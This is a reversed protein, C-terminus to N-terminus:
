FTDNAIAENTNVKEIFKLLKTKFENIENSWDERTVTIIHLPRSIYRPDYSVFYMTEITDVITFYHLLQQKYEAPVRNTIIYEIHKKSDPCKVEVGETPIPINVGGVLKNDVILGDPSLHCNPFNENTVMGFHEVDLEMFDRFEAIAIPELDIGRQMAESVFSEEIMNTGREAILEYMLSTNTSSVVKKARTGGISGKRIKYWDETRQELDKHLKM